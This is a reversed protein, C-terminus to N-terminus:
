FMIIENKGYMETYKKKEVMIQFTRKVERAKDFIFLNISHRYISTDFCNCNKFYM